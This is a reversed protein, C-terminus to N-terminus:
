ASCKSVTSTSAFDTLINYPLAKFLSASIANNNGTMLLTYGDPPASAGAKAAVIGGAGPRNEVVFTQGLKATLQQAGLRAMMDTNGGAGFPVIVTVPRTPWDAAHLPGALASLVALSAVISLSVPLRQPRHMGKGMEHRTIGTKADPRRFSGLTACKGLAPLNPALAQGVWLM